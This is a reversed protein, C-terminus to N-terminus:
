NGAGRSKDCTRADKTAEQHWSMWWTGKYEVVLWVENRGLEVLREALKGM